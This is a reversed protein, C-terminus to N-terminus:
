NAIVDQFNIISVSSCPTREFNIIFVDTCRWQRRESTKIILESCTECRTTINRSNVKFIYNGAPIDPLLKSQPKGNLKLNQLM